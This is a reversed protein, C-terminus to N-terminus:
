PHMLVFSALGGWYITSTGDQGMAKLLLHSGETGTAASSALYMACQSLGTDLSQGIRNFQASTNTSVFTIVGNTDNVAARFELDFSGFNTNTPNCLSVQAVGAINTHKGTDTSTATGLPFDILTQAASTGTQTTTCTGLIFDASGNTDNFVLKNKIYFNNITVDANTDRVVVTMPIPAIAAPIPTFIGTNTSSIGVLEYTLASATATGTGPLEIWEYGTGLGGRIVGLHEETIVQGTARSISAVFATSTTTITTTGTSTPQGKIYVDGAFTQKAINAM